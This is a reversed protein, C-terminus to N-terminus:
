RAACRTPYNKMRVSGPTTGSWKRFGRNFAAESSYGLQEAIEIISRNTTSLMIQAASMRTHTVFRGPSMGMAGTFRASMASRSLGTANALTELTWPHGPDRLVMGIAKAVLPDSLGEYFPSFNDKLAAEKLALAFLAESLRIFVPQTLFNSERQAAAEQFVSNLLAAHNGGFDKLLVPQYLGDLLPGPFKEDVWALVMRMVFADGGGGFEIHMGFARSLSIADNEDKMVGDVLSALVDRLDLPNAESQICFRHRLNRPVVLVDGPELLIPTPMGDFRVACNGELAEYLALSDAEYSVSVCVPASMHSHCLVAGSFRISRLLDDLPAPPRFRAPNLLSPGAHPLPAKMSTGYGIPAEVNKKASLPSSAM